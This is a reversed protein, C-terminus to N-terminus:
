LIYLLINPYPILICGFNIGILDFINFLFVVLDFMLDEYFSDTLLKLVTQLPLQLYNRFLWSLQIIFDM